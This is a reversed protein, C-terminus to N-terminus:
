VPTVKPEHLCQQRIIILSLEELLAVVWPNEDLESAELFAILGNQFRELQELDYRALM